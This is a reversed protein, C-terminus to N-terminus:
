KAPCRCTPRSRSRGGAGKITRTLRRAHEAGTVYNVAVSAGEQAFREAIAYGIGSSAGTVIAIRGELQMIM